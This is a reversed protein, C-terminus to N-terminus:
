QKANYIKMITKDSYLSAFNYLVTIDTVGNDNIFDAVDGNYYRLDLMYVTEYENALFPAMSHGYSDKVMLLTKGNKNSSTIKVVANNGGLFYSYKDRKQLFAEEYLTDTQKEGMNYDVEYSMSQNPSYRYIKDPKTQLLNAKSYITGYFDDTVAKIDFNRYSIGEIGVRDCYARYSYFAGDTTWHHDTKYYIYEDDHEKLVSAIDIYAEEPILGRLRDFCKLQDYSEVFDPLKDKLIQSATPALMVTVRDEGLAIAQANIFEAIRDINKNLQEEQEFTIDHKEILYGDEGFYVGSSEKKGILYESQTKVSIFSDRGIFQDTIYEEVAKTYKGNFLDTLSFKPRSALYRNESDSFAKDPKAFNLIAFIFILGWFVTTTLAITIKEKM